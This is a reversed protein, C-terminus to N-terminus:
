FATCEDGEKPLDGFRRTLADPKGGAKGLRYVIRFNFHSLFESWHVQHCSLLKTSMFYELIKHDSSVRIPHLSLELEARWEEFYCIFAMLEKDYIIYNCETPLHKNSFFVVPHLIGNTDYQSM